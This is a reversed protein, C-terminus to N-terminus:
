IGGATAGGIAGGIAGAVAGHADAKWPWKLKFIEAKSQPIKYVSSSKAVAAFLLPYSQDDISMGSVYIRNEIETIKAPLNDSEDPLNNIENIFNIGDQTILKNELMTELIKDFSQIELDNLSTSISIYYNTYAKKKENDSLTQLYKSTLAIVEEIVPKPSISNLVFDVGANHLDGVIAYPNSLIEHKSM